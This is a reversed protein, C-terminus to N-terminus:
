QFKVKGFYEPLHFNPTEVDIPNWSLFHMQKQKDGCKYFNCGAEINEFSEIETHKFIAKPIAIDISWQTPTDSVDLPERGLSPNTIINKLLEPELRYRDDKAKGYGVLCNGICNFELNYYAENDLTIFFEVCSDEYVEENINVNVAKPHLEDVEYRLYLHDADYAIGFMVKVDAPYNWNDNNIPHVAAPYKVVGNTTEVKSATIQNM